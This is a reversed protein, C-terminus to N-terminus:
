VPYRLIAGVSRGGPVEGSRVAFVRGGNLIVRRSIEDVLGYNEATEADAFTVKGDPDIHGPRADDFDAFLTDVAGHTAARAVDTLDTATRGSSVREAFVGAGAKLDDAYVTDLVPIALRALENDKTNDPSVNIQQSALRPYTNVNPFLQAIPNVAAVILPTDRGSLIPRLAGDIARLYSLHRIRQGEEGQIRTYASKDNVTSKGAHSAADKPLGPVKVKKPPMDSFVQVLRVSNESVALIFAEHPFTVARLLPLLHFRDSVEVNAPLKNALRFTTVGEPTAFVALSNAQVRWFSDDEALHLLNIEVVGITRKDHGAAELQRVAESILHRFELRAKAIKQTLPTAPVYISVCCQGELRNLREIDRATPTDVYLM